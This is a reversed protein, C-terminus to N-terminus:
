EEGVVTLFLNVNDHIQFYTNQEASFFDICSEDPEQYRQRRFCLHDGHNEVDFEYKNDTDINFSLKNNEVKISDIVRSKQSYGTYDAGEKLKM